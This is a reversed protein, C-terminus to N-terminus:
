SECCFCMAFPMWTMDNLNLVTCHVGLAGLINLQGTETAAIAPLALVDRCQEHLVRKPGTTDAEFGQIRREEARSEVVGAYGSSEARSLCFLRVGSWLRQSIM